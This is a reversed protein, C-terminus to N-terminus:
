WRWGLGFTGTGGGGTATVTTGRVESEGAFAEMGMEGGIQFGSPWAYWLGAVLGGASYAGGTVDETGIFSLEDANVQGGGIRLFPRLEMQLGPVPTYLLGGTIRLAASNYAAADQEGLFDARHSSFDFGGGFQFGWRGNGPKYGWLVQAGFTGSSAGSMDLSANGIELEDLPAASSFNFRLDLTWKKQWKAPVAYVSRDIADAPAPETSTDASPTAADAPPAEAAQATGIIALLCIILRM